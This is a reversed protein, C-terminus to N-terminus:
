EAEDIFGGTQRDWLKAYLGDMGLLEDHTGEEAIKGEEDLVVIRDMKRITSLRHAIVIATKGGMLEELALQIMHESESDLASTAEDLILIPANKLIARAIAVRQRQGGSLKIGREGVMTEYGKELGMIFEHAHARKAAEIVEVDTADSKGYSINERLSRHFLLPDQPVYAIKSRLDDQRMNRIDQDDIMISGGQPDAFRLLLKTVTTKGGGSPGILGVKEGAKVSFSFDQFVNDGDTYKFAINRFEINGDTIRCPEPHKPDVISPPLEFIGIMESANAIAKLLRTVSHTLGWVIGFISLLYTQVLVITGPTIEGRMWLFLAFFFVTVQLLIILGNQVTSLAIFIKWSKMRAREEQDAIVGFEARERDGSSFMKVNLINTVVDSFRGTLKSNEEAEREDFIRRKRLLPVVAFIIAAVALLFFVALAPSFFAIVVFMGVLQVGNLWLTFVIGDHLATFADVFRRAQSTLSGSFRNSFFEHSHNQIKSFVFRSLDRISRSQSVAFFVDGLRFLVFHAFHFGVLISFWRWVESKETGSSGTSGAVIDIIHKYAIVTFVDAFLIGMGYIILSTVFWWKYKGIVHWYWLFITRLPLVKKGQELIEMHEM